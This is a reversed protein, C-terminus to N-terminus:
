SRFSHKLLVSYLSPNNSTLNNYAQALESQSTTSNFEYNFGVLGIVDLTIQVFTPIMEKVNAFAFSPNMMKRQRKYKHFEGMTLLISEGAIEKVTTENLFLRPFEYARTSMVQQVHKPDSILLHPQNFSM